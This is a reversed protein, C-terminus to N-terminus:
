VTSQNNFRRLISRSCNVTRERGHLDALHFSRNSDSRNASPCRNQICCAMDISAGGNDIKGCRFSLHNETRFPVDVQLKHGVRKTTRSCCPCLTGNPNQNGLCEPTREAYHNATGLIADTPRSKPFLQHLFALISQAQPKTRTALGCMIGIKAKEPHPFRQQHIGFDASGFTILRAEFNFSATRM